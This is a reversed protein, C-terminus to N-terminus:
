PHKKLKMVIFYFMLFTTWGEVYGILIAGLDGEGIIGGVIGGLIASLLVLLSKKLETDM